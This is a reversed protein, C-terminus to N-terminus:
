IQYECEEVANKFATAIYSDIDGDIYSICNKLLVGVQDRAESSGNFAPSTFYYEEQELCVKASLYAINDYGDAKAMNAAYTENEAVSKLVPVYGSAASFAAQFNVNTILYKLFLWSAIVEQPDEKNFICISPGQSIVKGNNKDAQPISTIGVEFPYVGDANKDPRQHTAGASSGISMYSVKNDDQNTFLGSTYSGYIEQTTIWGKKFWENFRKVFAHNEKNDFRFHSGTASTYPTGLQECMTIFWNSESDYGLPTSEKNYAKLQACVYEMSTKCDSPCDDDCWWHDPVQLKLEDFVTKNYYLVETSKSFPMSYMQGDGFQQGEEYYAKIFDAKQAATLGIIEKSGDAREVEITSDILNDIVTVANAINYTAVHDPYCYALNPQNGVNIQEKIQSKVDDYGGVQQHEIQINPYLEEFKEIYKVLVDSLNTGMTHYFTLTIQKSTDFGEEPVVFAERKSNTTTCGVSMVLIIMALLAALLSKKM